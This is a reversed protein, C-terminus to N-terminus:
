HAQEARALWSRTQVKATLRYLGWATGPVPPKDTQESQMRGQVRQNTAESQSYNHHFKRGMANQLLIM